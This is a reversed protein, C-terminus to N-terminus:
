LLPDSDVFFFSRSQVYWALLPLPFSPPLRLYPAWDYSMIICGRNPPTIVLFHGSNYMISSVLQELHKREQNKDNLQEM